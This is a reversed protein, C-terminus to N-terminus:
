TSELADHTTLRVVQDIGLLGMLLRVPWPLRGLAASGSEVVPDCVAIRRGREIVTGSGVAQLNRLWDTQEGYTLVIRLYPGQRFLLLPTRYVAGSRRGRHELLVFPPIKGAFQSTVRNTLDRNARAIAKPLSMPPEQDLTWPGPDLSSKPGSNQSSHNLRKELRRM